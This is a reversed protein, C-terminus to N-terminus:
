ILIDHKRDQNRLKKKRFGIEPRIILSSSYVVRSAYFGHCPLKRLWGSWAFLVYVGWGGSYLRSCSRPPMSYCFRLAGIQKRKFFLNLRSKRELSIM